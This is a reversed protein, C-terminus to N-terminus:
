IQTGAAPLYTRYCLVQEGDVADTIPLARLAAELGWRELPKVAMAAQTEAAGQMAQLRPYYFVIRDGQEGDVVFLGSWEQFFGGGERDTFGDLRLAQMGATPAGALLPEALVLSDATVAAIRATNLTVQRVYNVNGGIAAAASATVYAASVESLTGCLLPTTKDTPDPDYDKPDRSGYLTVGKNVVLVAGDELTLAGTLFANEGKDGTELVVSRGPRCYDLAAQILATDTTAEYKAALTEAHGTRTAYLTVCRTPLKPETVSRTDQAVLPAALLAAFVVAAARLTRM